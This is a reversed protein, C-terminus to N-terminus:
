ASTVWAALKKTHGNLNVASLAHQRAMALMAEDDQPRAPPGINGSFEGALVRQLRDYLIIQIRQGCPEPRRKGGKPLAKFGRVARTPPLNLLSM